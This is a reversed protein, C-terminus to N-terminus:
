CPCLMAGHCVAATFGHPKPKKRKPIPKPSRGPTTIDNPDLMSGHCVAVTFAHSKTNKKKPTPKPPQGPIIIDGADQRHEFTVLIRGM